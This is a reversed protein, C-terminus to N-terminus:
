TVKEFKGGDAVFVFGVNTNQEAKSKSLRVVGLCTYIDM